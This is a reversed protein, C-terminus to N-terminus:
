TKCAMQWTILASITTWAFYGFEYLLVVRLCIVLRILTEWCQKTVCILLILYMDWWQLLIDWNWLHCPDCHKFTPKRTFPNYMNGASETFLTFSMLLWCEKIINILGAFLCLKLHSSMWNFLLDSLSRFQGSPEFALESCTDYVFDLLAQQLSGYFISPGRM